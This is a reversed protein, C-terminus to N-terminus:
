RMKLNNEYSIKSFISSSKIPLNIINNLRKFDPWFALEKDNFIVIAGKKFTEPNNEIRKIMWKKCFRDFFSAVGFVELSKEFLKQVRKSWKEEVLFFNQCSSGAIQFNPMFQRVWNWNLRAFDQFLKKGFIPFIFSHDCASYDNRSEPILNDETLFHNLCFRDKIKYHTRKQGTIFLFGTLILRGLWIRDKKIIVLIDWDSDKSATQLALTGSIFIGRIYPLYKILNVRMRIKKLKVLSFKARFIRDEALKKNDKITWFGKKNKIQGKIKLQELIKIIQGFDVTGSKQSFDLFHRWVEFTTPSHKLCNFYLITFYTRKILQNEM